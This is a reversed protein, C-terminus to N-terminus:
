QHTISTFLITLSDVMKLFSLEKKKSTNLTLGWQICYRSIDDLLSKLTEPNQLFVVDDDAFLMLFLKIEDVSMIGDLIQTLTKWFIM